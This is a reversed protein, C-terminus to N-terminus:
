LPFIFEGMERVQKQSINQSVQHQRILMGNFLSNETCAEGSMARCKKFDLNM